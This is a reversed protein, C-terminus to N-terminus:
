LPLKNEIPSLTIQIRDSSAGDVVAPDAGSEGDRPAAVDAAETGSGDGNDDLQAHETPVLKEDEFSQDVQHATERFLELVTSPKATATDQTAESKLQKRMIEALAHPFRTENVEGDDTASIIVRGPRALPKLFSGSASQTLWLLQEKAELPAFLGAWQATNLDPGPLHFWGHRDDQSGHGLLFVWLSDDPTLQENLEAVRTRILEATAPEADNEGNGILLTVDQEEVGAIETLWQRWIGVIQIFKERHEEDGPLGVVVFAYRRAPGVTEIPVDSVTDVTQSHASRPLLIGTALALGLLSIHLAYRSQRLRKRFHMSALTM